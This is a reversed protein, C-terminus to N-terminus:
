AAALRGEDTIKIKRAGDVQNTVVAVWRREEMGALAARLETLTIGNRVRLNVGTLLAGEPMAYPHCDNLEALIARQM